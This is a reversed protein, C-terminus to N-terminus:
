NSDTKGAPIPVLSMATDGAGPATGPVETTGLHIEPASLDRTEETLHETEPSGCCTVLSGLKGLPFLEWWSGPVRALEECGGSRKIM